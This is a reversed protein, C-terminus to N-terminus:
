WWGVPEAFLLDVVKVFIGKKVNVFVPNIGSGVKGGVGAGSNVSVPVLVSDPDTLKCAAALVSQGSISDVVL